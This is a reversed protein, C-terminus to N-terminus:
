CVRIMEASWVLRLNPNFSLHLTYVMTRFNQPRHMPALVGVRFSLRVGVRILTLTLTLTLM